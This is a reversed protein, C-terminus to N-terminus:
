IFQNLMIFHMIIYIIIVIITNLTVLIFVEKCKNFGTYNYYISNYHMYYQHKPYSPPNYCLSRQMYQDPVILHLIVAVM